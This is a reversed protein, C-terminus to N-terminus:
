VLLSVINALFQVLSKDNLFVHADLCNPFSQRIVLCPSGTFPHKDRYVSVAGDLNPQAPPLVITPEGDPPPPPRIPQSSLPQLNIIPPPSPNMPAHLIKWFLKGGENKLAKKKKKKVLQKPPSKRYKDLKKRPPTDPKRFEHPPSDLLSQHESWKKKPEFISPVEKRKREGGSPNFTEWKKRPIAEATKKPKKVGVTLFYL